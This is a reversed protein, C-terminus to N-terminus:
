VVDNHFGDEFGGECSDNQADSDSRAGAGFASGVVAMQFVFLVTAEIAVEAASPGIFTLTLGVGGEFSVVRL